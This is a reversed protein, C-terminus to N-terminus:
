KSKKGKAARRARKAVAYRGARAHPGPSGPPSKNPPLDAAGARASGGAADKDALYNAMAACWVLMVMADSADPRYEEGAESHRATKNAFKYMHAFQEQMVPHLGLRKSVSKVLSGLGSGKGGLGQAAHEVMKVSESISAEYDPRTPGMHKLAKEVHERSKPSIESAKKVSDNELDSMTRELRCRALKYVSLNEALVSNIDAAFDRRRSAELGDCVAEVLEYIRYHEDEPTEWYRKKLVSLVSDHGGTHLDFREERDLEDLAMEAWDAWLRARVEDDYPWHMYFVNWLDNRLRHDMRADQPRGRQKHGHRVGFKEGKGAGSGGASM